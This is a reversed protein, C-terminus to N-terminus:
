ADEDKRYVGDDILDAPLFNDRSGYKREGQRELWECRDLKGDSLTRMGEKRLNREQQSRTRGFEAAKPGDKIIIEM